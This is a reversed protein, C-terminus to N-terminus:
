MSSIFWLHTSLLEWTFILVDKVQKGQRHSASFDPFKKVNKWGILSDTIKALPDQLRFKTAFIVNLIITLERKYMEWKRFMLHM